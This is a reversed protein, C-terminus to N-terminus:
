SGSEIRSLLEEPTYGVSIIKDLELKVNERDSYVTLTGEDRNFRIHCKRYIITGEGIDYEIFCERDNKICDWIKDKASCMRESYFHDEGSRPLNEYWSFDEPILETFVRKIRAKAYDSLQEWISAAAIRAYESYLPEESMTKLGKLMLCAQTINPTLFLPHATSEFRLGDGGRVVDEIKFVKGCVQIPDGDLGRLKRIDGNITRESIWLDESLKSVRYGPDQLRKSIYMLREFTNLVPIPPFVIEIKLGKKKLFECLKKYIKIATDKDATYSRVSAKINSALDELDYYVVPGEYDPPLTDKFKRALSYTNDGVILNRATNEDSIDLYQKRSLYEDIYPKVNM